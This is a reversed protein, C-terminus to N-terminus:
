FGNQVEQQINEINEYAKIRQRGGVLQIVTMGVGGLLIISVWWMTKFQWITVGLGCLVGIFSIWISKQTIKAQELPTVGEIGSMFKKGFEKPGLERYTQIVKLIGMVVGNIKKAM